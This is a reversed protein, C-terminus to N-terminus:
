APRLLGEYRLILGIGPARASVDFRVAAGEARETGGGSVPAPLGGM